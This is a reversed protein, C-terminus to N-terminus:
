QNQGRAHAIFWRVDATQVDPIVHYFRAAIRVLVIDQSL